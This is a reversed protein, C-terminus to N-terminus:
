TAYGMFRTVEGYSTHEKVKVMAEPAEVPPGESASWPPSIALTQARPPLHCRRYFKAFLGTERIVSRGTSDTKPPLCGLLSFTTEVGPVFARASEGPVGRGLHHRIANVPRAAMTTIITPGPVVGLGASFTLRRPSM